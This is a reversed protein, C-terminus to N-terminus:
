HLIRQLVEIVADWAVVKEEVLQAPQDFLVPCRKVIFFKAPKDIGADVFM